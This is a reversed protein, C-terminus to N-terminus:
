SKRLAGAVKFIVSGLLLISLMESVFLSLYTWLPLGFFYTLMFGVALMVTVSEILAMLLVGKFSSTVIHEKLALMLFFTAINGFYSIILDWPLFPSSLNSLVNLFNMIIVPVFWEPFVALVFLSEAFRFQIEGYSFYGGFVTVAIYVATLLGGKFWTSPRRLEEKVSIM